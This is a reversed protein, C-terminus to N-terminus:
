QLQHIEEIQSSFEKTEYDPLLSSYETFNPIRDNVFTLLRHKGQVVLIVSYIIDLAASRAISIMDNESSSSEPFCLSFNM